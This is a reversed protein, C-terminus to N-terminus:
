LELGCLNDVTMGDDRHGWSELMRVYARLLRMHRFVFIPHEAHIARVTEGERLRRLVEVEVEGAKQATERVVPVLGCAPIREVLVKGDKKVYEVANLETARLPELHADPFQLHLSRFSRPNAFRIYAHYHTRGTSPAQEEGVVVVPAELRKLREVDDMKWLTLVWSRSKFRHNPVPLSEPTSVAM